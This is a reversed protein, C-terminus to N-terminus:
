ALRSLLHHRERGAPQDELDISIREGVM